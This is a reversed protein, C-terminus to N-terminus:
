RRPSCSQSWSFNMVIIFRVSFFTMAFSRFSNEFMKASHNEISTESEIDTRSSSFKVGITV